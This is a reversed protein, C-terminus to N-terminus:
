GCSISVVPAFAAAWGSDATMANVVSDAVDEPREGAAIARPLCNAPADGVLEIKAEPDADFAVYYGPDFTRFRLAVKTVDVPFELPLEYWLVLTGDEDAVGYETVETIQADGLGAKINTFYSWEALFKVNNDALAQLEAADTKGDQNEDSGQISFASYLEDFRWIIRIARVHGQEDFIFASQTDVWVHPHASASQVGLLTLALTCFAILFRRMHM